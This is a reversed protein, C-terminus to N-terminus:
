PSDRLRRIVSRKDNYASRVEIYDRHSFGLEESIQRIQVEEEGSVVDDAASVAFLCRLLERREARTALQRFERAVQFNETGGFLRNQSKAIEVVLVAQAEPLEGSTIVIEEMARTESESIDLDANAVRGLLYAFAAIFRAREPEMSELERVIRRVSATAGAAARDTAGAGAKGTAARGTAARDRLGSFLDLISKM